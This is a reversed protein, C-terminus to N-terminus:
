GDDDDMPCHPAAVHLACDPHPISGVTLYKRTNGDGTYRGTHGLREPERDIPEPPWCTPFPFPSFGPFLDPPNEKWTRKRPSIGFRSM